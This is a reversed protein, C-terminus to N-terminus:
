LWQGSVNQRVRQCLSGKPDTVVYSSHMQMLNPKVYFRTKGSGSGGIILVNNNRFTQRTDLSMRETQTFLMNKEFNKKDIYRDIDKETGWTASGYEIGPMYKKAGVINYLYILWILGFGVLGAILSNKDTGIYFTKSSISPYLKDISASTREIINGELNQHLVTARNFFYATLLSVASFFFLVGSRKKV